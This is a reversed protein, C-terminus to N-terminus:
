DVALPPYALREMLQRIRTLVPPPIQEAPLRARSRASGPPAAPTEARITRATTARPQLSLFSTLGDAVTDPDSALDECRIRHCQHRHSEEFTILPGTCAAWHPKRLGASRCTPPIVTMQASVRVYSSTGPRARLGRYM